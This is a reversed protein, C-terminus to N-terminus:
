AQDRSGPDDSGSPSISLKTKRKLTNFDRAALLDLHDATVTLAHARWPTDDPLQRLQLTLCEALDRAGVGIPDFQQIRKLVAAVEDQDIEVPEDALSQLSALIEETSVTLMGDSNIADIIATAIMQDVDSMITLNLQWHLHDEGDAGWPADSVFLMQAIHSLLGTEDAAAARAM